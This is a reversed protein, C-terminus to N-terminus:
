SAHWFRPWLCNLEHQCVFTYLVGLQTTQTCWQLSQHFTTPFNQNVYSGGQRWNAKFIVSIKWGTYLSQTILCNSLTGRSVYYTMEPVAVRTSLYPVTIYDTGKFLYTQITTQAHICTTLYSKCCDLKGDQQQFWKHVTWNISVAKQLIVVKCGNFASPFFRCKLHTIKVFDPLLNTRAVLINSTAIASVNTCMAQLTISFAVYANHSLLGNRSKNRIIASYITHALRHNVQPTCCRENIRQNISTVSRMHAHTIQALTFFYKQIHEFIFISFHRHTINM